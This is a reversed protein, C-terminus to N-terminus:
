LNMSRDKVMQTLKSNIPVNIGNQKGYNTAFGNIADIETPRGARIDQLMSSINNATGAAVKRIRAEINYAAEAYGAVAMIQALEQCLDTITNTFLESDVIAGNRCNLIATYANIGCNVTFKQWLAQWIDTDQSAKIGADTLAKILIDCGAQRASPTIGGIKTDGSGAHNIVRFWGYQSHEQANTDKGAPKTLRNALRDALRNAGETTTAAFLRYDALEDAMTYHSGLGNQLLVITSAEHLRHSISDLAPKVQYSKTAVLLHDISEAAGAVQWEIPISSVPIVTTINASQRYGLSISPKDSSQPPHRLIGCVSHSQALRIAFLGGIAGLGLIHIRLPPNVPM